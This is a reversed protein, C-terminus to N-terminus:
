SIARRPPRTRPSSVSAGRSSRGDVLREFFKMARRPQRAQELAAGLRPFELLDFPDLRGLTLFYRTLAGIFDAPDRGLGDSFITRGLVDLTVRAM